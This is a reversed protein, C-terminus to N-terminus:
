GHTGRGGAEAPVAQFEDRWSTTLVQFMQLAVLLSDDVTWPQPSYHMARFELPLRNRNAAVFANIGAAYAELFRRQDAPLTRAAAAAIRTTGLMRRDADTRYAAEGAVEALTGGALRRLTDMQWLREQATVYGQAFYLDHLSRASIHPVGLSDRRVVVEAALGAARIAGTTQPMPRCVVWWVAAGALLAGAVALVLVALLVRKLTGM